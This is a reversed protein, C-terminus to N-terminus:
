FEDDALDFWPGECNAECDPCNDNEMEINEEVDVYAEDPYLACEDLSYVTDAFASLTLAFIASITLLTQLLHKM